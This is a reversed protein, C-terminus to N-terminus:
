FPRNGWGGNRSTYSLGYANAITRLNADIQRWQAEVNQANGVRGRSNYVVSSIQSGLSLVRSAEDRSNTMNRGRGYENALSATASKFRSALTDLQDFKDYRNNRNDRRNDIRNVQNDFNRAMNQLSEVTGRINSGGRGGWYGNNGSQWQASAVAPLAFVLLSFAGIAIFSKIKNM